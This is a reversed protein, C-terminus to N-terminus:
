FALRQLHKPLRRRLGLRELLSTAGHAHVPLDLRNQWYRKNQQVSQKEEQERGYRQAIGLPMLHQFNGTRPCHGHTRDQDHSQSVEDLPWHDLQLLLNRPNPAAIQVRRDAKCFSVIFDAIQSPIEIPHDLLKPLAAGLDIQQVAGLHRAGLVQCRQSLKRGPQSM